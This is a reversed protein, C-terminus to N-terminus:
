VKIESKSMGFTTAVHVFAGNFLSCQVFHPIDGYFNGDSIQHGPGKIPLTWVRVKSAIDVCVGLSLVSWFAACVELQSWGSPGPGSSFALWCETLSRQAGIPALCGRKPM